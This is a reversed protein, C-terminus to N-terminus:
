KKKITLCKKAYCNLLDIKGCKNNNRYCYKCGCAVIMAMVSDIENNKIM